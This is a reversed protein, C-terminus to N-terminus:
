NPATSVVDVYNWTNIQIWARTLSHSYLVLVTIRFVMENIPTKRLWQDLSQPM